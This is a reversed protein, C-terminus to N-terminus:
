FVNTVEIIETSDEPISSTETGKTTCATILMIAVMLLVTLSFIKKM